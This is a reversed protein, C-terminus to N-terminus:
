LSLTFFIGVREKLQNHVPSFSKGLYKRFQTDGYKTIVRFRAQTRARQRKDKKKDGGPCIAVNNEPAPTTEPVGRGATHSIYAYIDLTLSFCTTFM